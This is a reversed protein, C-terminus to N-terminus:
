ILFLYKRTRERLCIAGKSEGIEEPVIQHKVSTVFVEQAGAPIITFPKPHLILVSSLRALIRLATPDETFKIIHLTVEPM